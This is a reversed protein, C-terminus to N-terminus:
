QGCPLAADLPTLVPEEGLWLDVCLAMRCALHRARAENRM